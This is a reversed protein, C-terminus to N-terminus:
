IDDIVTLCYQLGGYSENPYLGCVDTHILEFVSILTSEVLILVKYKSTSLDCWNGTLMWRSDLILYGNKYLMPNRNIKVQYGLAADWLEYYITDALSAFESLVLDLHFHNGSHM